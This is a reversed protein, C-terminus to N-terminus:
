NSLQQFNIPGYVKQPHHTSINEYYHKTANASLYAGVEDVDVLSCESHIVLHTKSFLALSSLM